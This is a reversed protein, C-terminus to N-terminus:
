AFDPDKFIVRRFSRWPARYDRVLNAATQIAELTWAGGTNRDYEEITILGLAMLQLSVSHDPMAKPTFYLADTM